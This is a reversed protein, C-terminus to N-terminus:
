TTINAFETEAGAVADVLKACALMGPDDLGVSKDGFFKARGMRCPLDRYRHLADNASVRAATAAQAGDSVDALALVLAHVSDLVTKDGLSAGGRAIMGDLVVALLGSLDSWDVTARGKTRRSLSLFAGSILTGLSSGTASMGARALKGFADSVDMADAAGSQAMAGVVRALMSGTDGDGLKADAQNLEQELTQVAGAARDIAAGIRSVDISM